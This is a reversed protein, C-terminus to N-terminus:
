HPSKEKWKGGPSEDAHLVIEFNRSGLPGQLKLDLIGQERAIWFEGSAETYDFDRLAELAIRTSSQKLSNWTDPINALFDDLKGITMRGPKTVKLDGKMREIERGAANLQLRFDLPGTMRFNKPSIIDTLQRLDVRKGSIWGIWPSKNDFFFSFGGSLYGGYTHGGFEGNIGHRDFTTSLWVDTAQYQRWLINNLKVTGVLNNEGKQPPYAFQLEGEQTSFQLQYSPFSYSQAPIELAVRMKLTALNDLSIDRASTWFNLPLGYRAQGGSALVLRGFKVDLRKVKWGPGAESSGGGYRKQADDMYWFLDEGVYITPYLITVENLEHRILGGLTFRLFVSRMTLVKTFPDLPSLIEFDAIEVVQMEEGLVGAAQTLSLDRLTTNLQFAIDSIEPRNDDLRVGVNRINLRSLKWAAPSGSSTTAPPGALVQQLALGVVLRGGTIDAGAVEQKNMVGALTFHLTVLDLTLFPDSFQPASVQIDWCIFDLPTDLHVDRWDFAFKARVAASYEGFGHYLIEGYDCVFRRIPWSHAGKDMKQSASGGPMIALLEPTLSVMPNVLRVEGIQARRLDDFSFVVSGSDLRFVERQSKRNRVVFRDFVLRGPAEYRVKGLEITAAPLARRLAWRAIRTLNQTTM